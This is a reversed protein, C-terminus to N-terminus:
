VEILIAVNKQIKLPIWFAVSFFLLYCCVSNDRIQAAFRCKQYSHEYPIENNRDFVAGFCM